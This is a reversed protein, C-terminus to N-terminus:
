GSYHWQRERVLRQRDRVQAEPDANSIPKESMKQELVPTATCLGNECVAKQKTFCSEPMAGPGAPSELQAKCRRLFNNEYVDKWNVNV